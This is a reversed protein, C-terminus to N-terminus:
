VNVEQYLEPPAHRLLPTGCNPKFGLVLQHRSRGAAMALRRRWALQEADDPDSGHEVVEANLGLMFVYDFELGKSSAITSLAISADGDPWEKARTIEAFSFGATTLQRRVEAFWGGGKPHLFAVNYKSLDIQRLSRIAWEMQASFLGKLVVPKQGTLQCADVEPLSSEPGLDMGQILSRAFAAIERSNRYNRSLLVSNHPGAQIGIERWSFFHPYIRQAGDLVFTLSRKGMEPMCSLLARVQNATFDQTEDIVVVQYLPRNGMAMIRSPLDEWDVKKNNIKWTLYKEVVHEMFRARKDRPMAPSNGRGERQLTLYSDLDEPRLRGLIYRLEDCAFHSEFDAARALGGVVGEWEEQSVVSGQVTLGKAWGAFTDITLNVNSQPRVESKALETVYGCLTRNFTLVLVSLEQGVRDLQRGWFDVVHSLRLLATTTKGSGAAGRIILDATPSHRLIKLQEPTPTVRRLIRM